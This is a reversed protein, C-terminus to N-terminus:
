RLGGRLDAALGRMARELSEVVFGEPTDLSFVDPVEDLTKWWKFRLDVSLELQPVELHLESPVWMSEEHPVFPAYEAILLRRQNRGLAVLSVPTGTQTDLVVHLSTKRPGQLILQVRGSELEAQSLVKAEDLPLDGMLLGFLDDVGAVGGTVERVVEEADTGVIHRRSRTFDVALGVGDSTLTALPAGLPGLVALHGQGPRDFILAGSASGAVDLPKSRVKLQFRAQVPDPTPRARALQLASEPVPPGGIPPISGGCGAVLLWGILIRAVSM